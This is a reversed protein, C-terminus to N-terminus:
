ILKDHKIFMYNKLNKKSTIKTGDIENKNDFCFLALFAVVVVEEVVVVIKVVLKVVVVIVVLRGM